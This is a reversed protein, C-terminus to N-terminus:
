GLYVKERGSAEEYAKNEEKKKEVLQEYYWNRLGVPLSYVEVFSWNGYYKMQDVQMHLNLGVEHAYELPFFLDTRCLYKVFLNLWKDIDKPIFFGARDPARDSGCLWM